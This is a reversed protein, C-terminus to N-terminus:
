FTFITKIYFARGPRQVGFFDFVQANSLNQIEGTFTLKRHKFFRNYTVGINQTFQSPIVQKTDRRGASEWSRFFKHVYRTGGFIIMDDRGSFISELRYRFASNSFLFPRNPIRDGKFAGFPGSESMNIFDFYTSNATISLNGDYSSWSANVEVGRSSADAVNQYVFEEDAGLLVILDKVERLFGNIGLGFNSKDSFTTRLNAALNMNHSREPNIDVNDVIFIGDGFVEGLNPLRTAWEYSTKLEWKENLQYKLNAGGGPENTLRSVDTLMGGNEIDDTKLQQTYNKVFGIINLKNSQKYDYELGNTFTIIENQLTLRDVADPDTILFNRGSRTDFTPSSSLRLEHGDSLKLGLNLRNYYTMDTFRVDSPIGREGPPDRRVIDGDLGISPEGEWTYVLTATDLLDTQSDSFGAINEISLTNWFNKKWKLLGGYTRFGTTIEGYPISMIFNHQLDREGDSIFGKVMLVDAWPQDKIGFDVNIGRALYDDHFRRITRETLKGRADPVEVDIKYNNKTYDYFGSARVFYSAKLPQHYANFALRHTRFSGFQYSITGGTGEFSENSVINVAGGLADAGFRIPVVGKYVEVRNVLNVPINAIGFTYGMARLPVGDVFFRIQDNTLGNLSLQANSGLGGGRQVNVGQIRALVEGLDVTQIKAERTEIVDVAKASLKLSEAETNASVIVEELQNVSERLSVSLDITSGKIQINKQYKEFGVSSIRVTYNGNPIDSITFRGTVNTVAGFSTRLLQITAGLLPQGNEDTIRGTLNGKKIEVSKKQKSQLIIASSLARITLSEDGWLDRIIDALRANTYSKNVKRNKPVDSNLYNVIYSTENSIMKLAEKVTNDEFRITIKRDLINQQCHVNTFSVLYLSLALFINRLIRNM